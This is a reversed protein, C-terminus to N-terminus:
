SLDLGDLQKVLVEREESTLTGGESLLRARSELVKPDTTGALVEVYNNVTDGDQVPLGDRATECGANRFKPCQYEFRVSQLRERREENCYKSLDLWADQAIHHVSSM